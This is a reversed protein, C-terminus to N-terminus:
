KTALAELYAAAKFVRTAQTGLWDLPKLAARAAKKVRTRGPAASAAAAKSELKAKRMQNVDFDEPHLLVARLRLLTLEESFTDMSLVRFGCDALLRGFTRTSFHNLHRSGDFHRHKQKLFMRIHWAEFNPVSSWFLGGPRLLRFVEGLLERPKELHEIVQDMLIVDFSGGPYKRDELLANDVELGRSRAIAAAKQNLEIGRALRYGSHQLYSLNWGKGCGVDLIRVEKSDGFAKRIRAILREMRARREPNDKLGAVRELLFFDEDFHVNDEPVNLVYVLGCACRAHAFGDKVFLARASNKGCLPCARNM